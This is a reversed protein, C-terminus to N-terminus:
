FIFDRIIQIKSEINLNKNHQHRRFIFSINNDEAADMDTQADGIMLCADAPVGYDRMSTKILDSKTTPSGYIKSFFEDLKLSNCIGKLENQPTASVM